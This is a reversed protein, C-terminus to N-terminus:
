LKCIFFQFVVNAIAVYMGEKNKTVKGTLLVATGSALASLYCKVEDPIMITVATGPVPRNNEYGHSDCWAKSYVDTCNGRTRSQSNEDVTEGYSDDVYILNEDSKEHYLENSEEAFVVVNVSSILMFTSILLNVIKKMM